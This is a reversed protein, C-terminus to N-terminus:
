MKECLTLQKAQWLPPSIQYCGSGGKVPTGACFPGPVNAAQPLMGYDQFNDATLVCANDSVQHRYNKFEWANPNSTLIAKLAANSSRQYGTDCLGGSGDLYYCRGLHEVDNPDKCLSPSDNPADSADSSTGGDKGSDGPPTLADPSTDADVDSTEQTGSDPPAELPISVFADTGCASLFLLVFTKM